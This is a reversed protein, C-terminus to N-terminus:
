TRRVYERPAMSESAKVATRIHNRARSLRNTLTSYATPTTRTRIMAPYSIRSRNREISRCSASLLAWDRVVVQFIAIWIALSRGTNPNPMRLEFSNVKWYPASMCPRDIWLWYRWVAASLPHTPKPRYTSSSPDTNRPSHDTRRAVHFHFSGSVARTRDIADPSSHAK